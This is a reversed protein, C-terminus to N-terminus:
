HHDMVPRFRALRRSARGCKSPEDGGHALSGSQIFSLASMATIAQPASAAPQPPPPTGDEEVVGFTATVVVDEVIEAASVVGEAVVVV